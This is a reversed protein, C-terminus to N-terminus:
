SLVVLSAHSASAAQQAAEASKFCHIAVNRPTTAAIGQRVLELAAGPSRGLGPIEYLYVSGFHKALFEGVAVLDADRRDGRVGWAIARGEASGRADIECLAQLAGLNAAQATIVSRGSAQQTTFREALPGALPLSALGAAIAGASMGLQWAAATAALVNEVQFSVQGGGTLPLDSLACVTERATGTCLQIQGQDAVVARKGASLHEVIGPLRIDRGFLIVDGRSFGLMQMAQKDGANLVAAGNELVVDVPTRKVAFLKEESWLDYEGGLHDAAELNTVIAVACKDFGLGDELIGRVGAEFVAASIDANMLVDRAHPADDCPGSVQQWDGVYQGTSDAAGVLHGAETLLHKVLKAV